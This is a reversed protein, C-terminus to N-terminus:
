YIFLSCKYYKDRTKRYFNILWNLNVLTKDGWKSNTCKLM